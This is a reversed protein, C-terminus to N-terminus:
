NQRAAAKTMAQHARVTRLNLAINKLLTMVAHGWRQEDRGHEELAAEFAAQDDTIRAQILRWGWRTYESPQQDRPGDVAVFMPKVGARHPGYDTIGIAVLLTDLWALILQPTLDPRDAEVIVRAAAALDGGMAHHLTQRGIDQIWARDEAVMPDDAM